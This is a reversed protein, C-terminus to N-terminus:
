SICHSVRHDPQFLQSYAAPFVSRRPAEPCSKTRAMPIIRALRLSHSKPTPRAGDATREWGFPSLVSGSDFIIGDPLMQVKMLPVASGSSNYAFAQIARFKGTAPNSPQEGPMGALAFRYFRVEVTRNQAISSQRAFSLTNVVSDAASNLRFSMVISNAAPAVLAYIIMMIAVVVLLELLSFGAQMMKRVGIGARVLPGCSSHSMKLAIPLFEM